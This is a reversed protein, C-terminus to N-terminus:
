WIRISTYTNGGHDFQALPDSRVNRFRGYRQGKNAYRVPRMACTYRTAGASMSFTIVSGERRVILGLQISVISRDRVHLVGCGYKAFGGETLSEPGRLM